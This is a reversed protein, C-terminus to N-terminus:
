RETQSVEGTRIQDVLDLLKAKVQEDPDRGVRAVAAKIERTTDEAHGCEACAGIHHELRRRKQGVPMEDDVIEDIRSRAEECLKRERRGRWWTLLSM